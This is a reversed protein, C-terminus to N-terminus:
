SSRKRNGAPVANSTYFPLFYCFCVPWGRKRGGHLLVAGSYVKATRRETCTTTDDRVNANSLLWLGVNVGRRRVVVSASGSDGVFTERRRGYGRFIHPLAGPIRIPFFRLVIPRTKSVNELEAKTRNAIETGLRESWAM